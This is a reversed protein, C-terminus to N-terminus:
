PEPNPNRRLLGILTKIESPIDAFRFGLLRNTLVLIVVYATILIAWSAPSTGSVALKLAILLALVGLPLLVTRQMVVWLSWGPESCLRRANLCGLTLQALAAAGAIGPLFGAKMSAFAVVLYLGSTLIVTRSYYRLDEPSRLCVVRLVADTGAALVLNAAFAFQVAHAIQYDMGLWWAVFSDNFLLYGAAAALGMLIQVRHLYHFLKVGQARLAPDHKSQLLTVIKFSAVFSAANILSFALEPLRGNVVFAPVQVAGFGANVLLQGMTTFVMNGLNALYAWVGTSFLQKFVARDAALPLLAGVRRDTWTLGLWIFWICFIQIGVQPLYQCWLPSGTRAMLWQCLFAVQTAVFAPLIPWCVNGVGYSVNNFYSAAITFAIGVGGMIFLLTLSGSGPATQFHLWGPLWPSLLMVVVGFSVALGLMLTRASDLFRAMGDFRQQARYPLLLISVANGIGGEGLGAFRTLAMFAIFLGYLEKGMSHTLLRTWALSFVMGGGLTVIRLLFGVRASDRRQWLWGLLKKLFSNQQVADM